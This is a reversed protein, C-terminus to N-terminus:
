NRNKVEEDDDNIIISGVAHTHVHFEDDVGIVALRFM